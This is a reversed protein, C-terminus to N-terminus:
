TMSSTMIQTLSPFQLFHSSLIKTNMRQVIYGFILVIRDFCQLVLYNKSGWFGQFYLNKLPSGAGLPQVAGINQPVCSSGSMYCTDQNSGFRISSPQSFSQVFSCVFLCVSLCVSVVFIITVQGHVLFHVVNLLTIKVLATDITSPQTTNTPSKCSVHLLSTVDTFQKEASSGLLM